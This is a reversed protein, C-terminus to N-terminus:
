EVLMFIVIFMPITIFLIYLSLLFLIINKVDVSDSDKRKLRIYFSKVSTEM